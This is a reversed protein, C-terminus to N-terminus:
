SSVESHRTPAPSRTSADNKCWKRYNNVTKNYSDVHEAGRSVKLGEPQWLTFVNVPGASWHRCSECHCYGMVEPDGNVTFQVAGCFCSGSWAKEFSM